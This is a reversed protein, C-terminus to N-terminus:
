VAPMLKSEIQFLNLTHKSISCNIISIIMVFFDNDIFCTIINSQMGSNKLESRLKNGMEILQQKEKALEMIKKAANRLKQQLAQVQSGKNQGHRGDDHENSMFEAGQKKLSMIEDQLQQILL